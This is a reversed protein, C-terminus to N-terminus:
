KHIQALITIVTAIGTLILGGFAILINLRSRNEKHELNRQKDIVMLEKVMDEIGPTGNGYVVRELRALKVSM